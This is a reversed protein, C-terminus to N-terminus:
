CQTYCEGPQGFAGPVGGQTDSSQIRELMKDKDVNVVVASEVTNDRVNRSVMVYTLVRREITGPITRSYVTTLGGSDDTRLIELIETDEQQLLYDTYYHEGNKGNYLMVSEIMENASMDKNIQTFLQNYEFREIPENETILSQVESSNFEMELFAMNTEHIYSVQYALQQFVMRTNDQITELYQKEIVANLVGSMCIALLIMAICIYIITNIFIRSFRKM